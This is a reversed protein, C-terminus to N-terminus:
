GGFQKKLRDFEKREAEVKKAAEEAAKKHRRCFALAALDIEKEDAVALIVAKEVAFEGETEVTVDDDDFDDDEDDSPRSAAGTVMEVAQQMTAAGEIQRLRKGCAINHGCGGGQDEYLYFKM